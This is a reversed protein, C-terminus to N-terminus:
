LLLLPNTASGSQSVSKWGHHERIIHLFSLLVGGYGIMLGPSFQKPTKSSCIWYGNQEILFALLIQTLPYAQYLYQEQKTYRYMYILFDINGALGHLRTPNQWRTGHAVTEAVKHAISLANPTVHHKSCNIFFQGIGAGGYAWCSPAAQQGEIKPWALGSGDNLAPQALHELWEATRTIIELVQKDGTAEFLNILADGIGAAGHAYGVVLPTGQTQDHDPPLIWHAGHPSYQITDVLFAGAQIAHLLHINDQTTQWLALHFRLRGAAGNILDPSIYPSQAIHSGIRSVVDIFSTDNLVYGAHLLAIGIGTIGTYLGVHTHHTTIYHDTSDVLRTVWLRLASVYEQRPYSHALEALIYTIGSSGSFLNLEKDYPVTEILTHALKHIALEISDLLLTHDEHMEVTNPMTEIPKLINVTSLDSELEQMSQYRQHLDASLCQEILKRLANPADPNLIDIQRDLLSFGKPALAPEANTSMFYLLAGFSYIDNRIDNDGLAQQPSIYGRTGGIAPVPELHNISCVLGFDIIRLHHDPTIIINTSKLDRYIYGAQHIKSLGSVLDLGWRIVQDLPLTKGICAYREIYDAITEGEIKEMILFCDGNDEVFDIYHPFEQHTSLTKVIKAELRLDDRADCGCLRVLADRRAQKIICPQKTVLDIGHAVLGQASYSIVSLILYRSAKLPNTSPIDTAVKSSIFPDNIWSYPQYHMGRKDLIKDGTPTTIFSLTSGSITKIKREAFSGYRYHVLSSPKLQRDSPITPGRLGYTLQHLTDALYVAQSITSPYITICKGIQSLGAKGRNLDELRMKSYIIKFSVRERFLIPLTRTLIEDISIISASIHIKWGQTLYHSEINEVSIWWPDESSSPSAHWQSPQEQYQSCYTAILDLFNTEILPNSM